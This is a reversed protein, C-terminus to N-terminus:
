RLARRDKCYRWTELRSSAMPNPQGEPKWGIGSLCGSLLHTTTSVQWRQFQRMDNTRWDCEKYLVNQDFMAYALAHASELHQRYIIMSDSQVSLHSQGGTPRCMILWNKDSQKSRSMHWPWEIDGKVWKRVKVVSQHCSGLIINITLQLKTMTRIRYTTSLGKTRM